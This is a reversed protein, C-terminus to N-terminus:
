EMQAAKELKKVINEVQASILAQGGKKKLTARKHANSRDKRKKEIEQVKEQHAREKELKQRARENRAEQGKIKALELPDSSREFKKDRKDFRRQRMQNDFSERSGSDRAIKRANNIVRRKDSSNKRLREHNYRDLKNVFSKGEKSVTKSHKHSSKM